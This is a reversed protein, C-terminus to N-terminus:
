MIFVYFLDICVCIRHSPQGSLIGGKRNIIIIIMVTTQMREDVYEFEVKSEEIKSLSWVHVITLM